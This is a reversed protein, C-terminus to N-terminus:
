IALVREVFRARDLDYCPYKIYIINASSAISIKMTHQLSYERDCGRDM